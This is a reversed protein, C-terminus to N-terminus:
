KRPGGIRAVPPDVLQCTGTNRERPGDPCNWWQFHVTLLIPPGSVDPSILSCTGLAYLSAPICPGAWHSFLTELGGVPFMAVITQRPVWATFRHFPADGIERVPDCPAGYQLVRRCGALDLINLATAPLKLTPAAPITAYDMRAAGVQYVTVQQMLQFLARVSADGQPRVVCVGREVADPCQEWGTFEVYRGDRVTDAVAQAALRVSVAPDPETAVLTVPLFRPVTFTCTTVPTTALTCTQGTAFGAEGRSLPLSDVFVHIRGPTAGVDRGGALEVALTLEVTENAPAASECAALAAALLVTLCRAPSM